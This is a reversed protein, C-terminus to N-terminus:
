EGLDRISRRPILDLRNEIARPVKDQPNFPIASLSRIDSHTEGLSSVRKIELYTRTWLAVLHDQVSSSSIEPRAVILLLVNRMMMSGFSRRVMLVLRVVLLNSGSPPASM